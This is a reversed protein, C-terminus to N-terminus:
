LPTLTVASETFGTIVDASRARGPQAARGDVDAGVVRVRAESGRKGPYDEAQAAFRRGASGAGGGGWRERVPLGGERASFVARPVNGGTSEM